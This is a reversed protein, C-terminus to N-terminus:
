KSKGWFDPLNTVLGGIMVWHMEFIRSHLTKFKGFGVFVLLFGFITFWVERNQRTIITTTNQLAVICINPIPRTM